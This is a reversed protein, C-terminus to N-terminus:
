FFDGRELAEVYKGYSMHKENAAKLIENISRTPEVKKCEEMLSKRKKAEAKKAAKEKEKEQARLIRKELTKQKKEKSVRLARAKKLELAHIPGCEVCYKRVCAYKATMDIEKGCRLCFRKEEM